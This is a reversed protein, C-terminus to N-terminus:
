QGQLPTETSTSETIIPRELCSVRFACINLTESQMMHQLNGLQNSKDDHSAHQGYENLETAAPEVCLDTAVLAVETNTSATTNTSAAARPWQGLDTGTAGRHVGAASLWSSVKNSVALMCARWDVGASRRPLQSSQPSRSAHAVVRLVRIHRRQPGMRRGAGLRSSVVVIWLWMGM